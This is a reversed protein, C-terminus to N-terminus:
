RERPSASTTSCSVLQTRTSALPPWEPRWLAAYTTCASAHGNTPFESVALHLPFVAGDKRRGSVERGIGVVKIGTSLYNALYGDHETRYPEPMLVKVNKGVLESTEYGFM